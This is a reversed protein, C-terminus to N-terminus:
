AGIFGFAGYSVITMIITALIIGCLIALSAKKLDMDLLSAVLAGTWAGTGPLPIGVFLMLGVFEGKELFDSKKEARKELKKVITGILPWNRTWQFIKKIFLLIFPIPIINGLVCVPIATLMPVKLSAAVLLGGRLELLPVMSVIFCFVTPSVVQGITASFIEILREM